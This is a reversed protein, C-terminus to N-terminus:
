PEAGNAGSAARQALLQALKPSIREDEATVGVLLISLGETTAVLKVGDDGVLRHLKATDHTLISLWNDVKLEGEPISM